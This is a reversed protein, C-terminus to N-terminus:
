LNERKLRWLFDKLLLWSTEVIFHPYRIKSQQRGYVSPHSVDVVRAGAVHLKVLMDNEFAFGRYIKDLDLRRLAESSIATYGNQPDSIHWYGSAIRNLNTLLFNGFSRWTSMERRYGPLSLRNGKAYDAKGEVVPDLIQHLIDPDMQRDGAMVAIIDLSDKLAEKHGCIIAAGVGGRTERSVMSVRGNQGAINLAIQWTNDTSADDVVFIKDVYDPMTNIVSAIFREENYAPVVVGIRKGEYM